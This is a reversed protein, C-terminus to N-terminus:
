EAKEKFFGYIIEIKMSNILYFETGLGM